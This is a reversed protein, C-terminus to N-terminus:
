SICKVGVTLTQGPVFALGTAPDLKLSLEYYEPNSSSVFFEDSVADTGTAGVVIKFSKTGEDDKAAVVSINIGPISGTFSPFTFTWLDMANVTATELWKTLDIPHTNVCDNHAVAGHPTWASTGGDGSPYVAENRIDGEYGAENKIYIDTVWSGTGLGGAPPTFAHANADATQSLLNTSNAHASGGASPIVVTGNVRLEGTATIAGAGSLTVDVEIYYRINSFLSRDTVGLTTGNGPTNNGAYIALTGDANQNLTFLPTDNNRCQYIAGNSLTGAWKYRFGIVWRSSHALVKTLGGGAGFNLERRGGSLGGSSDVSSGAAGVVTYRERLNALLDADSLSAVKYREFSDKFLVFGM